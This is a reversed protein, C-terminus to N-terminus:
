VRLMNGPVYCTSLSTQQTFSDPCCGAEQVKQCLFDEEGNDQPQPSPSSGQATAPKQPRLHPHYTPPFVLRQKARPLSTWTEASCPAVRDDHPHARSFLAGKLQM